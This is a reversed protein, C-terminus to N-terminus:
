GHDNNAYNCTRFLEHHTAHPGQPRLGIFAHHANVPCRTDSLWKEKFCQLSVFADLGALTKSVATRAAVEHLQPLQPSAVENPHVFWGESERQQRMRAWMRKHTSLIATLSALCVVSWVVPHVHEHPTVSLWLHRVCLQVDVPLHASLFHRVARAGHCEWFVHHRLELARAHKHEPSVPLTPQWGCYCPNQLVIDHGGAGCVGNLLLRWFTEKWNNEWKLGWVCKVKSSLAQVAHDLSQASLPMTPYTISHAQM